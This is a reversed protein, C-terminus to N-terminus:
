CYTSHTVSLSLTDAVAADDWMRDHETHRSVARTGVRIGVRGGAGRRGKLTLAAGPASSQASAPAAPPYGQFGRGTIELLSPFLSSRQQAGKRRLDWPKPPPYSQGYQCIEVASPVIVVM